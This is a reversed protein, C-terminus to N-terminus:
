RARVGYLEAYTIRRARIEGFARLGDSVSKAADLENLVRGRWDKPSIQLRIEEVQAAFFENQAVLRPITRRAHLVTTHDRRFHRGIVPGTGAGLEYALSMAIQRPRAIQRSRNPGRLEASTVNMQACVAQEISAISPHTM